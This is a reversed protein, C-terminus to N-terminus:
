LFLGKKIATLTRMIEENVKCRQKQADMQRTVLKRANRQILNTDVRREGILVWNTWHMQAIKRYCGRGKIKASHRFGDGWGLCVRLMSTVTNIDM